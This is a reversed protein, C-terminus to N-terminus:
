VEVQVLPEAAGRILAERFADDTSIEIVQKDLAYLEMLQKRATARVQSPLKENRVDALMHATLERRIEETKLSEAHRMSEIIRSVERSRLVRNANTAATAASCEYIRRYAVTPKEGRLVAHAFRYQKTTM